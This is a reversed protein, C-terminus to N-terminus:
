DCLGYSSTCSNADHLDGLLNMQRGGHTTKAWEVASWIGNDKAQDPSIGPALIFTAANQKSCLTVKNEWRAKEHLQEPFRRYIENLEKKNVNICPMCGVRSMGQLYLPNPKINKKACYEFVQRATWNVIPRFTWIGGGIREIKKANKRNLLEDRRVGQWSLVQYGQDVLDIQYAVIVNRKLEQTCFQALRSPFRGKLMCLDLFPNGTPHLNALVRRKAKNSWRVRKGNKRRTRMDRAIFMRKRNIQASFDAKLRLIKIDLTLELYTLYEYVIEHENGTDCFVPLINDRSCRDLAILLTATSDKGGSVSIVHKIGPDNSM